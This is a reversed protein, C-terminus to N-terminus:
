SQDSFLVQDTAPVLKKIACSVQVRPDTYFPWPFPVPFINDSGISPNDLYIIVISNRAEKDSSFTIDPAITPNLQITRGAYVEVTYGIISFLDVIKQATQTGKAHVKFRVANL